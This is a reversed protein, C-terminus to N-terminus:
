QLFTLTEKTIYSDIDRESKFYNAAGTSISGYFNKNM